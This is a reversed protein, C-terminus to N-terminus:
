KGGGKAALAAQAKLHVDRLDAEAVDRWREDGHRFWHGLFRHIFFAQEDEARDPIDFGALRFANALSIYFFCPRGLIYLLEPNLTEPWAPAEQM